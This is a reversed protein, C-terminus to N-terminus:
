KTGWALKFLVAQDVDSIEVIWHPDHYRLSYTCALSEHLEDSLWWYDRGAQVPPYCPRDERLARSIGIAGDGRGNCGCHILVPYSMDM